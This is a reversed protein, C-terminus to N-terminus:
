HSMMMRPEPTVDDHLRSPRIVALNIDVLKSKEGKELLGGFTIGALTCTYRAICYM